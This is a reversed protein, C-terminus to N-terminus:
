TELFSSELKQATEQLSEFLEYCTLDFQIPTISICNNKIAGVDFNTDLQTEVVDGALWYYNKGRPDTRKQFTNRYRRDGLKTIRVGNLEGRNVPPVNINLLHEPELGNNLVYSVFYCTFDAALEFGIEGVETLSVAISPIELIVGELAASVTGSYIVDTGLNSGRNIGSVVLDPKQPLLAEVALKVCAAPTGNVAWGNLEKNHLFKVTEVRLPRHMTIAHGVASQEHDPAIIVLNINEGFTEHMKQSLVQIGEAQIGDDNTILITKSM